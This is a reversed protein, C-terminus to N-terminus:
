TGGGIGQVDFISQGLRVAGDAPGMDASRDIPCCAGVMLLQDAHDRVDSVLAFRFLPQAQELVFEGVERPDIIQAFHGRRDGM